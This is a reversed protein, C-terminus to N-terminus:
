FLFICFTSLFCVPLKIECVPPVWRDNRHQVSDEYRKRLQVMSEEAQNNLTNLRSIEMKLQEREEILQREHETSKCQENRLTDRAVLSNM